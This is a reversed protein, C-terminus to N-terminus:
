MRARARVRACDCGGRRGGAGELLDYMFRRARAAKTSDNAAQEDASSVEITSLAATGGAAAGAGTTSLMDAISEVIISEVRMSLTVVSEVGACYAARVGCTVFPGAM